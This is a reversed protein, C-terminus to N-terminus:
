LFMFNLRRNLFSKRNVMFNSQNETGITTIEQDIANLYCIFNALTKPLTDSITIM